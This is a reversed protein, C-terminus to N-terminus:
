GEFDPFEKATDVLDIFEYDKLLDAAWGNFDPSHIEYETIYKLIIKDTADEIYDALESDGYYDLVEEPDEKRGNVEIEYGDTVCIYLVDDIVRSGFLNNDFDIADWGLKEFSELLWLNAGKEKFASKVEDLTAKYFTTGKRSTKTVSAKVKSKTIKM